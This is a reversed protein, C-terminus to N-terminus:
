ELQIDHVNFLFRSEESPRKKKGNGATEVSASLVLSMRVEAFLEMENGPPPILLM